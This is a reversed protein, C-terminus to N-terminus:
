EEAKKQEEEGSGGAALIAKYKKMLSRKHMGLPLGDQKLEFKYKHLAATLTYGSTEVLAIYFAENVDSIERIKTALQEITNVFPIKLDKLLIRTTLVIDHDYLQAWINKM